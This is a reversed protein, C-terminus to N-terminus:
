PVRFVMIDSVYKIRSTLRMKQNVSPAFNRKRERFVMFRIDMEVSANRRMSTSLTKQNVNVVFNLKKDRFDSSRVINEVSVNKIFSTSRM